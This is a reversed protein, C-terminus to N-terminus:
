LDDLSDIPVEFFDEYSDRESKLHCKYSKFFQHLAYANTRASKILEVDNGMLYLILASFDPIQNDLILQIIDVFAQNADYKEKSEFLKKFNPKTSEISLIDYQAKEPNDAHVLYRFYGIWNKVEECGVGGFISFEEKVQSFSKTTSFHFLIHYHPKKPNGDDTVDSDHLPSIAYWSCSVKKILDRFRPDASEEYVITAWNYSRRFDHSVNKKIIKGMM